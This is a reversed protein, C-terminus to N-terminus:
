IEFHGDMPQALTLRITAGQFRASRPWALALRPPFVPSTRRTGSIYWLLWHCCFFSDKTEFAFKEFLQTHKLAEAQLDLFIKRHHSRGGPKQIQVPGLGFLVRTVLLKDRVHENDTVSLDQSISAASAALFCSQVSQM